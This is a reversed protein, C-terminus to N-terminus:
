AMTRKPKVLGTKVSGWTRGLQYGYSEIDYGELSNITAVVLQRNSQTELADLRATLEAEQAPDLLDAQDVVRGTLEPFSQAHAPSVLLLFLILFRTM